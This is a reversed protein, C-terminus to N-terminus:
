NMSYPGSLSRKTDSRSINLDSYSYGVFILEVRHITRQRGEGFNSCMYMTKAAIPSPVVEGPEMAKIGFTSPDKM